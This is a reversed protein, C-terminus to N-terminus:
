RGQAPDGTEVPRDDDASWGSFSAVYVRAAPLGAHELALVNMCTSVGSGCYAVVDATADTIGRAAFHARLEEVPRVRRTTPDIVADWPASRAGPVHGPRPDIVTVEGTFREHARADITVGGDDGSRAVDDASALRHTPWPRATFAARPVPPEGPGTATPLGDARAAVLGGDLLAADHGLLRLMVVLRGATMGGTDDYAVVATDDSVGLATMAAAFDDPDPLPHRGDTAPRDHGALDRDLDVFVAGALHEAEYATRGDRGDLYWRVDALVMPRGSAGIGALASSDIVPPIQPRAGSTM